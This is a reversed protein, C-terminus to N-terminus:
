LQLMRFAADEEQAKPASLYGHFEFMPANVQPLWMRLMAFAGEFEDNLMAFWAERRISNGSLNQIVIDGADTTFNRSTTFPGVSKLWPLYERMTGTFKDPYLGVDTDTWWYQFGNVTQIDLLPIVGPGSRKAIEAIVNAALVVPM